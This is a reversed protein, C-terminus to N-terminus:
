TILSRAHFSVRLPQGPLDAMSLRELMKIYVTPQHRLSIPQQPALFILTKSEIPGKRRRHSPCPFMKECLQSFMNLGYPAVPGGGLVLGTGVPVVPPLPRLATLM